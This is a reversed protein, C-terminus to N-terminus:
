TFNGTCVVWDMIYSSAIMGEGEELGDMDGDDVVIKGQGATFFM